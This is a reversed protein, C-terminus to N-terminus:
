FKLGREQEPLSLMYFYISSVFVKNVIYLKSNLQENNIMSFVLRDVIYDRFEDVLDLALGARGPRDTYFFLM